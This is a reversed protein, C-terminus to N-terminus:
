SVGRLGLIAGMEQAVQVGDYDRSAGKQTAVGSGGNM